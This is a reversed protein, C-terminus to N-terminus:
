GTKGAFGVPASNEADAAFSTFMLTLNDPLFFFLHSTASKTGPSAQLAMRSDAHQYVESLRTSATSTLSIRVCAFVPVQQEGQGDRVVTGGCGRGKLGVDDKGAQKGSPKLHALDSLVEDRM